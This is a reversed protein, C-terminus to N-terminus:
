PSFVYSPFFTCPFAAPSLAAHGSQMESPAQGAKAFTNDKRKDYYM